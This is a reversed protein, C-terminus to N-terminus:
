HKEGLETFTSVLCTQMQGLKEIHLLVSPVGAKEDKLITYLEAIFDLVLASAIRYDISMRLSTKKM